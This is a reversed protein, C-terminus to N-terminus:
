GMQSSQLALVHGVKSGDLYVNGGKRVESVLEKLLAVVEGTGLVGQAQNLPIIAEPGAEGVLGAVPSTVVGGDAFGFFSGVSKLASKAGGVINSGVNKVKSYASSALDKAGSALSSVTSGASKAFGLISDKASTAWGSLKESTSSVFSDFGQRLKSNPDSFIKFGESVTGVIGGVAAGVATGVVPIVSGIAAGTLAGRGAAGAIGLAEDGGSGKEIGLAGSFMSGKEAGGTLVGLTTAKAKSIGVEVGAAKQQEATMGAQSSGTFGGFIMDAAAGIPGLVKLTKTLGGLLKTGGGAAPAVKSTLKSMSPVLKSLTKNNAVVQNMFSSRKLNMAALNRLQKGIFTNKGGFVKSLGKFMKGGFLGRKGLTRGLFDMGGGGGTQNVVHVFDPNLPSAGRELIGGFMKKVGSALSSAAKIALLGGAVGMVIKGLPGSLFNVAAEITPGLAQAMNLFLPGIKKALPELAAKLQKVASQMTRDFTAADKGQTAMAEQEALKAELQEGSLGKLEEQKQMQEALQETSIGLTAAFAEQAMVNGKLSGMNERILRAQEKAATETDGTLAAARLKDLNLDKQLFMEAEIEKAISSEFDLHTKAAAAIEDMTTGLRAATHAARVLGETGGKINFRVSASSNTIRDIADATSMSFGSGENLAQTTGVVNDYINEFPVGSEASLKFLKGAQETSLGMYLTMDQFTKANKENFKLNQGVAQNLSMQAGFLEETFYFMDGNADGAAHIEAKLAAAEAGAVGFGQGIQNTLKIVHDFIGVLFKISKVIMTIVVLPDTLAAGLGEALGKAGALFTNLKGGEKAAERMSGEVGEFFEGKIGIKQFAGAMGQIAAGSLGMAKQIKEEEKVRKEALGLLEEQVKYESKLNALVTQEADSLKNVGGLQKAKLTLEAQLVKLREREVKILQAAAKVEKGKMEVVGKADDSFKQALGQLKTFSKTAEKTPDAFGTKWERVINKISENIGGFGDDLDDVFLKAESLYDRLLKIDDVTATDFDISLPTEGIKEYITNLEKLDRKLKAIIKPDLAM